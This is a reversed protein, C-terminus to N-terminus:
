SSSENGGLSGGALVTSGETRKPELGSLAEFLELELKPMSYTHCPEPFRSTRVDAVYNRLAALIEDGLEAYRKVFRAVIGESLGLLDHWVLIQGDCSAGAGIGITPVKLAETIRSAVPEPIAELVIAFCGARELAIADHFLREAQEATRGQAKYGGLMTASQPTLGLHGVVPIGAAVIAAVRTTSSGAGELKVADAGAEKVFRVANGVASVDSVQYSGFPMDAIVLAHRVGLVVAGTLMLMEDMTASVTSERGFMTMVASDGVLVCDIGALDALRGSPADYATVLAIKEGQRKMRALDSLSVKGSHPGRRSDPMESSM